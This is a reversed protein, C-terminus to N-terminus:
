DEENNGLLVSNTDTPDNGLFMHTLDETNLNYYKDFINEEFDFHGLSSKENNMGFFDSEM